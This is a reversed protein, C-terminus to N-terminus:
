LGLWSRTDLSRTGRRVEVFLAPPAGSGVSGVVTGRAVWDGVQVDVRGLGGFVTYFSDGHDLIVMRGYSGYTQSFAVRGEAVSRVPTGAATILELGPGDERVAERIRMEGAIPSGLRGRYTSFGSAVPAPDVVRLTGYPIAEAPAPAAPLNPLYVQGFVNTYQMQQLQREQAELAALRGELSTLESDTSGGEERLAEARQRLFRLAEVDGEVMRELREVRALHSLLAVFGGAVPLMGARRVRYLARTRAVLLAKAAERREELGEIESELRGKQARAREIEARTDALGREIEALSPMRGYTGPAQAAAPGVGLALLLPILSRLRRM